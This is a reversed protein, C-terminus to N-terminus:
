CQDMREIFTGHRDNFTTPHSITVAAKNAYQANKAGAMEPDIM